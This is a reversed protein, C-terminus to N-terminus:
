SRLHRWFDAIGAFHRSRVALESALLECALRRARARLSRTFRDSGSATVGAFSRHRLRQLWVAYAAVLVHFLTAGEARALARLPQETAPAVVFDVSRGAYRSSAVPPPEARPWTLPRLGALHTRWHALSREAAPGSEAQRRAMVYDDFRYAPLDAAPVGGAM